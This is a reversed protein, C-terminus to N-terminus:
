KGGVGGQGRRSLRTWLDETEETVEDGLDLADNAAIAARYEAEAVALDHRADGLLMADRRLEESDPSLLRGKGIAWAALDLSQEGIALMSLRHAAEVVSREIDSLIGEVEIWLYRRSDSGPVGEVLQLAITWAEFAKNKDGALEAARAIGSSRTFRIWDCTVEPSLTYSGANTAIPVYRGGLGRRAANASNAVSKSTVSERSRYVSLADRLRSTTAKGGHVALYATFEVAPATVAGVTEGVIVPEGRLICVELAGPEPLEADPAPLSGDDLGRPVPRANAAAFLRRARALEDRSPLLAPLTCGLPEVTVFGDAYYLVRDARAFPGIVAALGRGRDMALDGLQPNEIVVIPQREYNGVRWCPDIVEAAAFTELIDLDIAIMDEAGPATCEGIRYLEVEGWPANALNTSLAGLARGIEETTGRVGLTEGPALAVFYCGTDDEGIPILCPLFAWTEPGVRERITDLELAPDLRWVLGGDRAEFSPPAVLRPADLLLEIGNCGARVVSVAPPDLSRDASLESLLLRNAVDVWQTLEAAGLPRLTIEAVADDQDLEPPSTGAPAHMSQRRRRRIQRAALLSTGIFGFGGLVAFLAVDRSSSSAASTEATRPASDTPTESPPITLEWGAKIVTPDVFRAGAPERRGMNAKAILVWDRRDGYFREALTTLKDGQQVIYDRAHPSIPLRNTQLSHAPASATVGARSGGMPYRGPTAHSTSVALIAGAILAALPAVVSAFGLHRATPADGHAIRVRKRIEGVLARTAAVYVAIFVVSLGLGLELGHRLDVFRWLDLLETLAWGLFGGLAL